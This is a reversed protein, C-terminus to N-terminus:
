ARSEDVRVPVNVQVIERHTATPERTFVYRDAKRIRQVVRIAAATERLESLAEAPGLRSHALTGGPQTQGLDVAVM